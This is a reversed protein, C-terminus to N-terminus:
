KKKHYGHGDDASHPFCTKGNHKHNETKTCSKDSCLKHYKHGDGIYHGSYTKGNHKHTASNNCNKTNCLSNVTCANNHCHGGAYVNISAILMIAVMAAILAFTMRKM